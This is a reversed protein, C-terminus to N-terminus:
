KGNKTEDRLELLISRCNYHSPLEDLIDLDIMNKFLSMVEIFDTNLEKTEM